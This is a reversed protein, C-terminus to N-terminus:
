MPSKRVHKPIVDTNQGIARRNMGVGHGDVFRIYIGSSAWRIRKPNNVSHLSFVAVVGISECAKFFRM